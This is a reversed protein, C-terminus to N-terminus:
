IKWTVFASVFDEGVSGGQTRLIVEGTTLIQLVVSKPGGQATTASVIEAKPALAKPLFGVTRMSWDVNQKPEDKLM